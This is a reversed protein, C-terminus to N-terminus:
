ISDVYSLCFYVLEWWSFGEINAEINVASFENLVCLYNCILTCYVNRCTFYKQWKSHQIKASKSKKEFGLRVILCYSINKKKLDIRGCHTMLSSSNIFWKSDQGAESWPQSWLLRLVGKVLNCFHFIIVEQRITECFLITTPKERWKFSM